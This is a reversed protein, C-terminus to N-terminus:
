AVRVADHGVAPAKRCIFKAPHETCGRPRFDWRYIINGTDSEIQLLLIAGVRGRNFFVSASENFTPDRLECDTRL